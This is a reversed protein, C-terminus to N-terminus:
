FRFQCLQCSVVYNVSQFQAFTVLLYLFSLFVPTDTGTQQTWMCIVLVFPGGIMRYGSTPPNTGTEVYSIVYVDTLKWTCCDVEAPLAGM